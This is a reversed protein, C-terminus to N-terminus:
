LRNGGYRELRTVTRSHFQRAGDVWSNAVAASVVGDPQYRLSPHWELVPDAGAPYQFQDFDKPVQIGLNFPHRVIGKLRKARGDAADLVARKLRRLNHTYPVRREARDLLTKLACEVAYGSLYAANTWREEDRLICADRVHRAAAERYDSEAM